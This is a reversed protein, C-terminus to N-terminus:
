NFNHYNNLAKQTFNKKCKKYNKEKKKMSPQQSNNPETKFINKFTMMLIIKRKFTKTCKNKKNNNNQKWFVKTNM